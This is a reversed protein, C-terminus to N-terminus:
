HGKFILHERKYLFWKKLLAEKFFQDDSFIGQPITAGLISKKLNFELISNYFKVLVTM